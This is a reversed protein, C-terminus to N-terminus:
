IGKLYNYIEYRIRNFNRISNLEVMSGTKIHREEFLRIVFLIENASAICMNIRGTKDKIRDLPNNLLNFRRTLNQRDVISLVDGLVVKKDALTDNIPKLPKYREIAKIRILKREEKIEQTRRDTHCSSKCQRQRTCEPIFEKGCSSCKM